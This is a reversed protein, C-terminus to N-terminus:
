IILYVTITNDAIYIRDILCNDYDHNYENYDLICGSTANYLRICTDGFEVLLSLFESLTIKPKQDNEKIIEERIKLSKEYAPDYEQWEKDHFHYEWTENDESTCQINGETVHYAIRELFENWLFYDWKVHGDVYVTETNANLEEFSFAKQYEQKDINITHNKPGFCDNIIEKIKEPYITVFSGSINAYYSM